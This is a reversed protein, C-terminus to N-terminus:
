GCTLIYGILIFIAATTLIWGLAPVVIVLVMGSGVCFCVLGLVRKKM